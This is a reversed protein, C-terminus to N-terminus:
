SPKPAAKSHVVRGSKLFAADARLRESVAVKESYSVGARKVDLEQRAKRREQWFRKTDKMYDVNKM